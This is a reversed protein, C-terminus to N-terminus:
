RNARRQHYQPEAAKNGRQLGTRIPAVKVTESFDSHFNAPKVDEDEENSHLSQSNKLRNGSSIFCPEKQVEVCM